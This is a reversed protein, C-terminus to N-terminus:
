KLAYIWGDGHPLVYYAKPVWGNRFMTEVAYSGTIKDFGSNLQLFEDRASRSTIPTKQLNECFSVFNSTALKKTEPPKEKMCPCWQTMNGYPDIIVKQSGPPCTCCM